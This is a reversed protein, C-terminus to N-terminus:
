ELRRKMYDLTILFIISFIPLFMVFFYVLADSIKPYRLLSSESFNFVFKGENINEILNKKYIYEKEELRGLNNNIILEGENNNIIIEGDNTIIKEKILNKAKVEDYSQIFKDIQDKYKLTLRQNEENLTKEISNLSDIDNSKFIFHDKGIELEFNNRIPSEIILENIYDQYICVENINSEFLCRRRDEYKLIEINFFYKMGYSNPLNNYYVYGSFMPILILSFFLIKKNLILNLIYFVSIFDKNSYDINKM